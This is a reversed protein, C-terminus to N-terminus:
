GVLVAYKNWNSNAGTATIYEWGRCSGLAQVPCLQGEVRDGTYQMDNGKLEIGWVAYQMDNGKLELGWIAYWQRDVRAGLSCMMAWWSQGGYGMDSGKLELGQISCMMARWSKGGYQVDNGMLELRWVAYWQGEVRAEM